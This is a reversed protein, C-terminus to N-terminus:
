IKAGRGRLPPPTSASRRPHPAKAREQGQSGAVGEAVIIALSESRGLAMKLICVRGHGRRGLLSHQ